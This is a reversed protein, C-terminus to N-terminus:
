EGLAKRLFGGADDLARKAEQFSLGRKKMLIAIKASGGAEDLLRTAEEYGVGTLLMIIRKARETTKATTAHVDVMLNGYVRGTMVMTGTSIMHLVMMEALAAKMRTSGAIVEPGTDVCIIEDLFDVRKEAPNATILTTPCGKTKAYQLGSLVYPTRGSASLGIVTDKASVSIENLHAIAEDRNDESFEKARFVAESGGAILGVFTGPPVSFTPWTEAADIIGLRGSTGAGIYIVRGGLRLSESCIKIVRAIHPIAKEVARAVRADESNIIRLVDEIPKADLDRSVPNEMETRLRAIEEFLEQSLAKGSPTDTRSSDLHNESPRTEGWAELQLGRRM